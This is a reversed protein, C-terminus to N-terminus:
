TLPSHQSLAIPVHLTMNSDRELRQDIAHGVNVVLEQVAKLTQRIVSVERDM